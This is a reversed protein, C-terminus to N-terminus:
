EEMLKVTMGDLLSKLGATAVLDGESLGKKIEFGEPLLSGIEVNTKKVTFQDGNKQLLFAFRGNPGEGIAKAPAIVKPTQKQRELSFTVNTAMGPRIDPSPKDIKVIVPYTSAESASFAVESVTGKFVQGSLISFRIDVQQGKRIKSIFSEPIGVRVEPKGAANLVAVPTGSGVLENEEVNIATVIGNFPATLRAYSVQNKAGQVQKRSATVQALAAEYQSEAAEYSAKAQEYESLPVSNNEYLKEVREYTSKTTVRQTQASKIQTEANKLQAVAQDYEITYDIADLSAIIQGRRVKDGVKVKLRNITGSVKFSLKVEESSQSVGSFTNSASSGTKIVKAHRIPRIIKEAPPAQKGGCSLLLLTCLLLTFCRYKM